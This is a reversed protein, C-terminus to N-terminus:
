RSLASALKNLDSLAQDFNMAKLAKAIGEVEAELSTKAVSSKLAKIRSFADFKRDRLLPVLEAILAELMAKDLPIEAIPATANEPTAHLHTREFPLHMELHKILVAQEIPKTIFDNIGILECKQRDEAYASATIAIMPTPKQGQM